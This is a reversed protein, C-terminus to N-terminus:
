DECVASRSSRVGRANVLRFGMDFAELTANKGSLVGCLNISRGGSDRCLSVSLNPMRVDKGNLSERPLIREIFFGM